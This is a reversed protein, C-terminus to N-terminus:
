LENVPLPIAEWAVSLTPEDGATLVIHLRHPTSRSVVDARFEVDNVWGGIASAAPYKTHLGPLEGDAWERGVLDFGHESGAVRVVLRSGGKIPEVRVREINDLYPWGVSTPALDVVNSPGAGAVAEIRATSLAGLREALEADASGGESGGGEFAPLLHEWILDLQQQMGIVQATCAIVAEQEPLLICYQGYAGDGRSAGHRCMWMLYGYGQLWDAEGPTPPGIGELATATEIQLRMCDAVFAASVIQQEGWRGKQLILQGLKAISETTVHLGSFGQDIGGRVQSWEAQEIGLPDFLRRRLYEVVREGTLSQIIQSLTLPNGQNYAFVSGPPQDPALALFNSVLNPGMGILRFVTEDRHGSAMSLLHRVRLRGTYERLSDDGSVEPAFDPLLDVVLDDVSFRGEGVAIGVAMALFTKSLSYLLQIDDVRYPAWWGEAVVRGHRVIVLSHFDADEGAAVADLFGIIRQADVGQAFPTSRPLSETM